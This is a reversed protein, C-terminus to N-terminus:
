SDSLRRRVFPIATTPPALNSFGRVQAQRSPETWLGPGLAADALSTVDGIERERGGSSLPRDTVVGVAASKVIFRALRRRRRSRTKATLRLQEATRRLRISQQNFLRRRPQLRRPRQKRRARAITIYIIRGPSLRVPGNV